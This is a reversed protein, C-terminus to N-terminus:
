VCMVCVHVSPRFFEGVFDSDKTESCTCVGRLWETETRWSSAMIIRSKNTIRFCTYARTSHLTLTKKIANSKSYHVVYLSRFSVNRVSYKVRRWSSFAVRLALLFIPRENLFAPVINDLIKDDARPSRRQAALSNVRLVVFRHPVSRFCFPFNVGFVPIYYKLQSDRTCTRM